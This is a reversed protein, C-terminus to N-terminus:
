EVVLTVNVSHTVGGSTASVTLNYTQPTSGFYGSAQDTLCGTLGLSGLGLLLVLALSALRRRKRRFAFPLLLLGFAIPADHMFGAFPKPQSMAALQPPTVSLVVQGGSSGAALSSPTFTVVTNAPQGSVSFTVPALLTASNLPAVDFPYAATKGPFITQTTTGASGLSFSFDGTSVTTAQSTSMQCNADGAYTAAFTYTGAAPVTYSSSATGTASVVETDFLNGNVSFSVTTTPTTTCSVTATLAVVGGVTVPNPTATLTTTTAAQATATVVVAPSTSTACNNDGSYIATLSHAGATTVTDTATSTLGNFNSAAVIQVGNDFFAISGAPTVGPVACAVTATLSVTGGVALSLPTATLTTTSTALPQTANITIPLSTSMACNNDGAYTATISHAGPTALIYGLAATSNALPVTGIPAGNDYFTLMGTPTTSCSVTATLTVQTGVNVAYASSTVVTTTSAAPVASIVVPNSTQSITGDTASITWTGTQGFLVGASAAFIHMGADAATFTYTTGSLFTATPDTSTFTLTGRYAAPNGGGVTVSFSLPTGLTAANPTIVIQLSYPSATGTGNLTLVQMQPSAASSLTSDSLTLAATNTGVVTPTFGVSYTCSSGSALQASTPLTTSSVLPCTGGQVGFANTSIAPNLTTGAPVTFQASQNGVNLVTFPLAGDVSDFTDAPTAAPFTLTGTSRHIDVLGLSYDAVALDGTGNIAIGTPVVLSAGQLALTTAGGGNPAIAVIRHNGPDAVYMMGSPDTEIGYPQSLTIPSLPVVTVAYTTLDVRLVRDNNGDVAYLAGDVGIVLGIPGALAPSLGKLPLAAANSGDVNSRYIANSTADATYLYGNADIALGSPQKLTVGSYTLPTAVGGVISYVLSQTPSSVLLTGTATLAIASPTSTIVSTALVSYVGTASRKLLRNNRYDNFYLNGAADFAVATTGYTAPSLAPLSAVAVATGPSFVVEAGEGIGHVAVTVLPHNSTDNLEVAGRRVGAQTPAFMVSVTCNSPPALTGTCNQSAIAFDSQQVGESVATVSGVTVPSTGSITFNMQQPDSTSGVTAKGLDIAGPSYIVGQATAATGQLLLLAVVVEFSAVVCRRLLGRGSAAGRPVKSLPGPSQKM